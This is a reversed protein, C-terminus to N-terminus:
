KQRLAIPVVHGSEDESLLTSRGSRPAEITKQRGANTHGRNQTEQEDGRLHVHEHHHVHTERTVKISQRATRKRKRGSVTESLAASASMLRAYASVMRTDYPRKAVEVAVRMSIIYAAAVHAAQAAQAENAPRHSRVVGLLLQLEGDNPVRAQVRDEYQDSVLNLLHDLFTTAIAVNRTGFADILMWSWEPWDAPQEGAFPWDWIVRGNEDLLLEGDEGRELQLPISTDRKQTRRKAKDVASALSQPPEPKTRIRPGEFKGM